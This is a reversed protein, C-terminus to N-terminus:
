EQCAISMPGWSRFCLLEANAQKSQKAQQPSAGFGKVRVIRTRSRMRHISLFGANNDCHVM